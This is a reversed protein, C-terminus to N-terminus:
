AGVKRSLSRPLFAYSTDDQYLGQPMTEESDIVTGEDPYGCDTLCSLIATRSVGEHFEIVIKPQHSTLVAGMGLIVELEMAQVDIKVGDLAQNEGALDNWVRDLSVHRITEEVYPLGTLTRDAMGRHLPLTLTEPEPSSSLGYDIVRVQPLRNAEVTKRLCQASRSVPEFAFVRGQPGVLRGLAVATYGYHAGVDLWTEGPKVNRAFWALLPRETRGLIAGPYDHWSTHIIAGRLPGTVVRHDALTRPLLRRVREKLTSRPAAAM